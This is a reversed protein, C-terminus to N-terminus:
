HCQTVDVIDERNSCNQTWIVETFRCKCKIVNSSAYAKVRRGGIHCLIVNQARQTKEQSGDLYKDTPLDIKTGEYSGVHPQNM